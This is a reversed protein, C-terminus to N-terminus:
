NEILTQTYLASLAHESNTQGVCYCYFYKRNNVFVLKRYNGSEQPPVVQAAAALCFVNAFATQKCVLKPAICYIPM